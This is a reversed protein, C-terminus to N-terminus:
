TRNVATFGGSEGAVSPTGADEADEGMEVDEDVHRSGADFVTQRPGTSKSADKEVEAQKKIQEYRNM